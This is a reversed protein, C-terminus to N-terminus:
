EIGFEKRKKSLEENIVRSYDLLTERTDVGDNIMRRVANTIHRSVYYGGPVEPTGVTWQRQANLIEM